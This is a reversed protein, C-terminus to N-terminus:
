SAIRIIHLHWIALAGHDSNLLHPAVAQVWVMGSAAVFSPYECRSLAVDNIEIQWFNFHKGRDCQELVQRLVAQHAPLHAGNDLVQRQTDVLDLGAIIVTTPVRHGRELDYAQVVLRTNRGFCDGRM